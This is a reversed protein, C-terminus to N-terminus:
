VSGRQRARSSQLRLVLDRRLQCYCSALPKRREFTGSAPGVLADYQVFTAPADIGLHDAILRGVSLCAAQQSVFPVSPRYDDSPLDTLGIAHALGCIPKGLQGVLPERQDDTLSALHEERLPQDGYRLTAVDLGTVAALREAASPGASQVPFLCRLCARGAGVDHLGCMTEGTAADLLREPWVMQADRRAGTSDLATLALAPWHADGADIREIFEAVPMDFRSIAMGWLADAALATKWPRHAAAAPDGLSYTGINEVAFREPDVLSAQGRASMLGLTRAIATGVAGLGIIAIDLVLPRELLPVSAPDDSLTVPCWSVEEIHGDRGPLIPVLAKFAEGTLLAACTVAGLGSAPQGVTLPERGVRAGHHDPAGYLDSDGGRGVHLRLTVPQAASQGNSAVSQAASGLRDRAMTDLGTTDLTLAVPLRALNDLLLEAAALEPGGSIAASVRVHQAALHDLLSLEGDASALAALRV